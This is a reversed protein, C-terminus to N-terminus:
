IGMVKCAISGALLLLTIACALADRAHFAQEHLHTRGVGGHYCRADMGAALADAHRFVSAFLPVFLAGFAHARKHLSGSSLSAGRSIQANRINSFETAFQPLFRLAIGGIMALEHAPLGFRAFPSLMNEFADTIDLATTTMTVLCAGFLLIMLRASMFIAQHFGNETISLVSVSWLVAGGQVFFLNALATFIVLISLPAVCIFATRVPIHALRYAVFVFAACLIMAGPTTTIVNAAIFVLLLTLKCRADLAHVISSKAVYRGFILTTPYSM